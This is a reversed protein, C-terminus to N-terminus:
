APLAKRHASTARQTISSPSLRSTQVPPSSATALADAEGTLSDAEVAVVFRDGLQALRQGIPHAPDDHVAISSISRDDGDGAFEADDRRDHEPDGDADLRVRVLEDRGAVLVLLEAEREAALDGEVGGALDQRMGAFQTKEAQVAVDAALDEVGGSEVHGGLAQDPQVLPDAVFQTIGCRFDVEAAAVADGVGALVRRQRRGDQGVLHGCM